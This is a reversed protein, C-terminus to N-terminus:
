MPSWDCFGKRQKRLNELMAFPQGWVGDVSKISENSCQQRMTGLVARQCRIAGFMRFLLAQFEAIGQCALCFQVNLACRFLTVHVLVICFTAVSM